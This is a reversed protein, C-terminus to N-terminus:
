LGKVTLWDTYIKIIEKKESETDFGDPPMPAFETNGNLHSLIQRAKGKEIIRKENEIYDYPSLELGRADAGTHCGICNKDIMQKQIKAFLPPQSTSLIKELQIQLNKTKLDESGDDTIYDPLEQVPKGDGLQPDYFLRLVKRSKDEVILLSGDSNESIGVPSGMAQEGHTDWGYVVSQPKGMPLGNDDQSYAVIRHGQQQFGHLSFLIRNQYWAPFMKGNYRLMSLPSSHPPLLLFPKEFGQCNKYPWEPNLINMDYCYPWGYHAGSKIINFEEHPLNINSLKNNKDNIADRGNEAQLLVNKEKHWILGMSNRLGKAYVEFTKSYQGSPLRMYKRIQAQGINLDEAESCSSKKSGFLGQKQCVNTASGVNVYLNGEHDFTFAKLPHLGQNPINEILVEIKETNLEDPNFRTIQSVSGLYFLGDPGKQILHPRDLMKKVQESKATKGDLLTTRIYTGNQLNLQYIRGRKEAWGGMDVVLIKGRGIEVATRPFITNEGGDILGVCFGPATKVNVKPLGGCQGIIKYKSLAALNRENWNQVYVATEIDFPETVTTEILATPSQHICSALILSFVLGFIKNM